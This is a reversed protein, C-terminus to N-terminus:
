VYVVFETPLYLLIIDDPNESETTPDKVFSWM